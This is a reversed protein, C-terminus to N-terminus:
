NKRLELFFPGDCTKRCNSRGTWAEIRYAACTWFGSRIATREAPKGPSCSQTRDGPKAKKSPNYHAIAFYRDASVIALVLQLQFGAYPPKYDHIDPHFIWM